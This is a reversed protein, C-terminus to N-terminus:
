PLRVGDISKHYNMVVGAKEFVLFTKQITKYHDIFAYCMVLSWNQKVVIDLGM